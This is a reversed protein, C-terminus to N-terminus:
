LPLAEIRGAEIHLYRSAVRARQLPDHSVWLVAAQHQQQYHHIHREVLTVGAPDLGSTPEDLLLLLPHNELLRLLALRQREGTSCATPEQDLLTASLGVAALPLQDPARFHDGIRGQWWYGEAPLLGVGKRWDHAAMDCVATGNLYLQGNSPELDVLTRLLRSKGGGSPGSLAVVELAEIQLDFPELHPTTLQRAEFLPHTM